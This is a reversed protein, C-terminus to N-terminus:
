RDGTLGDIIALLRVIAPNTAQVDKIAQVYAKDDPNSYRARGWGEGDARWKSAERGWKAAVIEVGEADGLLRRAYQFCDYGLASETIALRLKLTPQEYAM